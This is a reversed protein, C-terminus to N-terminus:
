NRLIKRLRLFEKLNLKGNRALNHLAIHCCWCLSVFDEIHKLTYNLNAQDHSKGHIEHFIIRKTSGCVVCKTGLISRIKARKVKRDKKSWEKQYKRQYSRVKDQNKEKWAKTHRNM